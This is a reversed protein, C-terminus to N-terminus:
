ALILKSTRSFLAAFLAGTLVLGALGGALLSYGSRSFWAAAFMGIVGGAIPLWTGLLALVFASTGSLAIREGCAPCTARRLGGLALLKLSGIAPQGCGPCNRMM